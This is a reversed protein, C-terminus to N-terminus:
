PFHRRVHRHLMYADQTHLYRQVNRCNFLMGVFPRRVGGFSGPEGPTMNAAHM